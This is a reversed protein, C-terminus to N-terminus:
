LFTVGDDIAAGPTVDPDAPEHPHMCVFHFIYLVGGRAVNDAQETDVAGRAIGEGGLLDSVRHRRHVHRIRDNVQADLRLVLLGLCVDSFRQLPEGFLVRGEARAHVLFGSFRNDGTHSLKVKIDVDFAHFAFVVGFDFGTSRLDGVTFRDGALGIEIVRVFLLGTARSLVAANRSINLRHFLAIELEDVLDVTARNGFLEYARDLFAELRHYRFAAQDSKGDGAKADD